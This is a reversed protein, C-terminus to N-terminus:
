RRVFQHRRPSGFHLREATSSHSKRAPCCRGQEVVGDALPVNVIEIFCIQELEVGVIQFHRGPLQPTEADFQVDNVLSEELSESEIWRRPVHEVAIYENGSETWESRWADDCASSYEYSAMWLDILENLALTLDNGIWVRNCTPLKVWMQM